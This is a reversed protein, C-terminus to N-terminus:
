TEIRRDGVPWMIRETQRDRVTQRDRDGERAGREKEKRETCRRRREGSRSKSVGPQPECPREDGATEKGWGGSM